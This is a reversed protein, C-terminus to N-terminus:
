VLLTLCSEGNTPIGTRRGHRVFDCLSVLNQCALGANEAGSMQDKLNWDQMKLAGKGDVPHWVIFLRADISLLFVPM